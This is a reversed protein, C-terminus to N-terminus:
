GASTTTRRVPRVFMSKLLHKGLGILAFIADAIAEAQAMRAKARLREHGSM